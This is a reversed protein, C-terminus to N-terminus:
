MFIDTSCDDCKYKQTGCDQPVASYIFFAASLMLKM